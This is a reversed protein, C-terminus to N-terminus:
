FDEVDMLVPGAYLSENEFVHKEQRQFIKGLDGIWLFYLRISAATEPVGTGKTYKPIYLMSSNIKKLQAPGKLLIDEFYM